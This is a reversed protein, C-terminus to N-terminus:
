SIKIQDKEGDGRIGFIRNVNRHLDGDSERSIIEYEIPLAVVGPRPRYSRGYTINVHVDWGWGSDSCEAYPTVNHLLYLGDGECVLGSEESPSPLYVWQFDCVLKHTMEDFPANTDEVMSWELNNAWGIQVNDAELIQEFQQQSWTSPYLSTPAPRTVTYSENLHNMIESGVPTILENLDLTIAVGGSGGGSGAAALAIQEWGPM